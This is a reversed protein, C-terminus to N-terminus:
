KIEKVELEVVIPPQCPRYGLNCTSANVFITSDEEDRGYGEHVHGFVHLRPKIQKVRALLQACGVHEGSFTIDLINKPPGHTILVDVDDPIKSWVQKIEPSDIPLNFGWNNFEPQYPSGYFKLGTKQDIFEQQELYIIGYDTALSPDRILQGIKEYDQKNKPHWRQWTREYFESELTLDHNGAIIIKLRYQTLSKLWKLFNEVENQEGSLSFDGAHVLIDGDKLAFHYRSHTDSICVIRTKNSM